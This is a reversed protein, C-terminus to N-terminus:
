ENKILKALKIILKNLNHNEVVFERLGTTNIQRYKLIMDALKEPNTPDIQCNLDLFAKASENSSLVVLGCAMAELITKDLSGTTSLQVYIDHDRYLKPMEPNLVKGIFKVQDFLNMASIMKKIKAQYEFDSELIPEGFINIEFDINKNKLIGATKILLSIDKSPTIRGGTLIKTKSGNTKNEGPKFLDTDIGHGTVIVKPSQLRFSEKSATFIKNAMKEAMRLRLTVSKHTYWLFIKKRRLRWCIGGLVVWIPNMHVLVYDYDLGIIYKNFNFFQSIKGIGKDKGLSFVKVNKPLNYTGKELCLVNVEDFELSILKIWSIFFSFYMDKEDVKQTILLLRNTM